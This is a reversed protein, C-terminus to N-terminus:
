RFDKGTPVDKPTTGPQTAPDEALPGGPATIATGLGHQYVLKGGEYAAFGVLGALGLLTLTFLWRPRPGRRRDTAVRWAILVAALSLVLYGVKMHNELIGHAAAVPAVTQEAIWGSAAAFAASLGAFCLLWLAFRDYRTDRTFRHLLEFLAAMMILAIPFHVLLPHLNQM